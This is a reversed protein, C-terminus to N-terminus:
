QNLRSNVFKEVDSEQKKLLALVDARKHYSILDQITEAYVSVIDIGDYSPLTYSDIIVSEDSPLIDWSDMQHEVFM